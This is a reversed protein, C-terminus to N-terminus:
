VIIIYCEKEIRIFGSEEGQQIHAERVVAMDGPHFANM